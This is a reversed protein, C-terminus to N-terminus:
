GGILRGNVMSWLDSVKRRLHGVDEATTRPIEEIQYFQSIAVDILNTADEIAKNFLEIPVDTFRVAVNLPKGDRFMRLAQENAVVANLDKLARSEPVRSAGEVEKYLWTTLENLHVPNYEWDGSDTEVVGVHEAINSYSIATTLLSFQFTKDNLNPIEYYDEDEIKCYLFYGKLLKQIYDTRSGITRALIKYVETPAAGTKLKHIDFLQQLYRAKALSDWREVGTVHRYGLYDLIDERKEYILVPVSSPIPVVAGSLIEAIASQRVTALSPDNLLKLSALRRNGEVVTYIGSAREVVLLPEAPVYGQQCISSMLEFINEKLIFHKILADNPLTRLDTSLRPNQPDFELQDVSVTASKLYNM